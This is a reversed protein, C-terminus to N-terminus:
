PKLDKIRCAGQPYGSAQPGLGQHVPTASLGTGGVVEVGGVPQLLPKKPGPQARCQEQPPPASQSGTLPCHRQTSPYVPGM